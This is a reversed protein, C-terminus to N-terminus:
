GGSKSTNTTNSLIHGWERNPFPSFVSLNKWYYSNRPNPLSCLAQDGLCLFVRPNPLFSWIVLNGMECDVFVVCM